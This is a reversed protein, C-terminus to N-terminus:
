ESEEFLVNKMTLIRSEINKGKGTHHTFYSDFEKGEEYIAKYKKKTEDPESWKLSEESGLLGAVIVSEFIIQSFKGSYTGNNFDYKKFSNEGFINTIKEVIDSIDTLTKDIKDSFSKQAEEINSVSRELKKSEMHYKEATRNMERKYIISGVKANKINPWIEHITVVRLYVEAPVLAKKAKDNFYKGIKEQSVENLKKSFESYFISNRIQQSSLPTGGSNLREFLTYMAEEFEPKNQKFEIVNITGLDFKEKEDGDLKDYTKNKFQDDVGYLRFESKNTSSPLAKNYRFCHITTLRQLGDVVITGEDSKILFISPLPLGMLISEILRSAQVYDWVYERQMEPIVIKKADMMRALQDYTINYSWYDIDFSKKDKMIESQLVDEIEQIEFDLVEEDGNNVKTEIIAVFSLKSYKGDVRFVVRYRNHTEQSYEVLYMNEIQDGDELYGNALERISNSSSIYEGFIERM